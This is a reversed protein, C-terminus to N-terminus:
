STNLAGPVYSVILTIEERWGTGVQDTGLVDRGDVVGTSNALGLDLLDM